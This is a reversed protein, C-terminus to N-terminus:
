RRNFDRTARVNQLTARAYEDLKDWIDKYARDLRVIGDDDAFTKRVFEADWGELQERLEPGDEEIDWDWNDVADIAAQVVQAPTFERARDDFEVYENM